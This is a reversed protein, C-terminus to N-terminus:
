TTSIKGYSAEIEKKGENGVYQLVKIFDKLDLLPMKKDDCYKFIIAVVGEQTDNLGLIKALLVPGFESVTSRLRVGKESSLSLLEVPYSIPKYEGGIKALREKIKDNEIGAAAIGSLDGKIDMLAVPVSAESLGEALVQLTKTKGTGTAGAILGHRNMTKLPLLVPANGIVEGELVGCGIKVAEGKFQYGKTIAEVFVEKNAM